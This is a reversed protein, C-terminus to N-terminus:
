FDAAPTRAGTWLTYGAYGAAFSRLFPAFLLTSTLTFATSALLWALATPPLPAGHQLRRWAVLGLTALSLGLYVPYDWANTARLAVVVLALSCLVFFLPSSWMGGLSSKTRQERNETRALAVMLGLAALALPLAIMHTNLDAYLFTYFPFENITSDQIDMGVL